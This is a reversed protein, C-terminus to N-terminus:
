LGAIRSLQEIDLNGTLVAAWADLDAEIADGRDGGASAAGLQALLASRAEARDFLGHVYTGAVRGDASRAGDASGGDLRAFPRATDPGSTQGLHIEYGALAAEGECLRGMVERMIKEGGLVTEVRLLGLGDSVGPPGEAGEPDAIRRGLMQYGGCVGLVRGGRRAHRSCTSTGDKRGCASSTGGTGGEIGPPDGPRRRRPAARRASCVPLRDGPEAALPDFDDFNAISPLLPVVIRVRRGAGLPRPAQLVVADEAPLRRAEARWPAMGLDPWGTRAVIERRGADFLAPDGRFKNIIFGRVMAQDAPELVTYAGVLAAIVHGRDIDGVLAVPAGVARAFGMNAIDGERLNMEAPSGAGEVLM